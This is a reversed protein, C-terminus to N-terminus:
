KLAPSLMDAVRASYGAEERVVLRATEFRFQAISNAYNQRALLAAVLASNYRDEINLVDIVTAIGLQRRTRENRVSTAYANVATQAERLQDAARQVSRTATEVSNAVSFGMERLRTQVAEVAAAQQRSLGQAANNDLSKQFALGISYGPPAPRALTSGLALASPGEALSNQTLALVLDLQPQENFRAATQRLRAAELRHRLAVLDARQDLAHTTLAAIRDLAQLSGPALEPFGDALRQIALGASGELGMARGLTRQAEQLAQESAIRASRKESLSAAALDLESRPIQDAAVLKGLEDLFDAARQESARGIALRETRALCDWYALAVALVTQATTFEMESRVAASEAQVAQLVSSSAKGANRLLPMRLQFNLIGTNQVPIGAALLTNDRLHNHSASLSAQLGDPFLKSVSAELRANDAQVDSLDMSARQAAARDSERLPQNGRSRSAQLSLSADFAAAQQQVAGEAADVSARALVLNANRALASRVANELTIAGPAPAPQATAPAPTLLAMALAAAGTCRAPLSLGFGDM